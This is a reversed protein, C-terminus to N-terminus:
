RSVIYEDSLPSLLRKKLVGWYARPSPSDTLIAIVDTVSYYWEGKHWIRRLERQEFLALDLNKDELM